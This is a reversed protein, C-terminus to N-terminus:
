FDSYTTTTRRLVSEIILIQDSDLITYIVRYQGVRLRWRPTPSRLKKSTRPRPEDALGRIAETVREFQRDPLRSLEREARKSFRLEYPM